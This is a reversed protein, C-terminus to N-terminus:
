GSENLSRALVFLDAKAGRRTYKGDFAYDDLGAGLALLVALVRLM